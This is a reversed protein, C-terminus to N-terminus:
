PAGPKRTGPPEIRRRIEALTQAITRPVSSGQAEYIAEYAIREFAEASIGLGKAITELKALETTKEEFTM